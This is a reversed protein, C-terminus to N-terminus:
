PWGTCKQEALHRTSIIRYEQFDYFCRKFQFRYTKLYNHTTEGPFSGMKGSFHYQQGPFQGMKM